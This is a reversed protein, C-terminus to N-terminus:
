WYECVLEETLRTPHRSKSYCSFTLVEIMLMKLLETQTVVECRSCHSIDLCCHSGTTVHM